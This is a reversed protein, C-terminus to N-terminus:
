TSRLTRVKELDACSGFDQESLYSILSQGESPRRFMGEGAGLYQSGESPFPFTSIFLGSTFLLDEKCGLRESFGSSKLVLSAGPDKWIVPQFPTYKRFSNRQIESDWFVLGRLKSFPLIFPLSGPSM